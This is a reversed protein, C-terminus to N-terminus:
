GGMADVIEEAAQEQGFEKSKDENMATDLFQKYLVHLYRNPMNMLEGITTTGKLFRAINM